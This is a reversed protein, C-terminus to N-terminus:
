RQAAQTKAASSQLQEEDKKAMGVNGESAGEDCTATPPSRSQEGSVSGHHCDTGELSKLM